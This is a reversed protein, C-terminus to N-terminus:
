RQIGLLSTSVDGEMYRTKFGKMEDPYPKDLYREYDVQDEDKEESKNEKKPLPKPQSRFAARKGTNKQLNEKKLNKEQVRAKKQMEAELEQQKKEANRDEKRKEDCIKLLQYLQHRDDKTCTKNIRPEQDKDAPFLSDNLRYEDFQHKMNYDLRAMPEVFNTVDEYKICALDLIKKIKSNIQTIMQKSNPNHKLLSQLYETFAKSEGPTPVFM